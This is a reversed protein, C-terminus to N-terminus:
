LRSAPLLSPESSASVAPRYTYVVVGMMIFKSVSWCSLCGVWREQGLM